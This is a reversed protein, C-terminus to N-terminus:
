GDHRSLLAGIDALEQDFQDFVEALDRNAPLPPPERTPRGRNANTYGFEAALDAALFQRWSRRQTIEVLLSATAARELLKSAGAVSLKLSTAVSQPSLLPRNMSLALLAPLAGARFEAAIARQADRYLRELRHLRDLGDRAAREIGRIAALWDDENPTRKLRFAKLGSALCPLPAATVGWDRLAFPLGLWAMISPDIRALKRIGDLARVLLPHDRAEGPEGIATPLADRWGLPDPDSLAACWETFRGFLDLHSPLRARGPIQLGCGWSFVDIEEVEASQLRLAAAYGSWAARMTWPKAVPSAIIRADLRAIAASCTAIAAVMKPTYDPGFRAPFLADSVGFQLGFRCKLLTHKSM